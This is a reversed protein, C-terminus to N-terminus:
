FPKFKLNCMVTGHHVPSGDLLDIEDWISCSKEPFTDIIQKLHGSLTMEKQMTLESKRWEQVMTITKSEYESTCLEVVQTELKKWRDNEESINPSLESVTSHIKANREDNICIDASSVPKNYIQRLVDIVNGKHNTSKATGKTVPIQTPNGKYEDQIQKPTIVEYDIYPFGKIAYARRQIRAMLKLDEKGTYRCVRLFSCSLTLVHKHYVLIRSLLTPKLYQIVVEPPVDEANKSLRTSNSLLIM